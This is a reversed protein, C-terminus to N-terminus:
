QGGSRWLMVTGIGLFTMLLSGCVHLAIHIGAGFFKGNQILTVAEYSFTSFTTLSGLFGTIVLISWQAGLAPFFAFFSAAVGIIYGGVLNATLTGLPVTPVIANLWLGLLWRLAAGAIAGICLAFFQHPM